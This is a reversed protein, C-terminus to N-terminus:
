ADRYSVLHTVRISGDIIEDRSTSVSYIEHADYAHLVAQKMNDLRRELLDRGRLGLLMDQAEKETM